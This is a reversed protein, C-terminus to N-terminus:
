WPANQLFAYSVLACALICVIVVFGAMVVGALAVVNTGTENADEAMEKKVEKIYEDPKPIEDSM